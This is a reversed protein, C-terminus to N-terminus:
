NFLNSFISKSNNTDVNNDKIIFYNERMKNMRDDEIINNCVQNFTKNKDLQEVIFHISYMGCETTDYQHRIENYQKKITKFDCGCKQYLKINNEKIDNLQNYINNMLKEIQKPVDNAVSDWFNIQGKPINIFLSVWHSGTKNHKDLNFVIGINKKGNNILESLSINCINNIICKNGSKLAFDIPLAGFSKFEPYKVEYQSLVKNIDINSLWQKPNNLWEVPAIPKFYKNRLEYIKDKNLLSNMINHEFWLIESKNDFKNKLDRYLSQASQNLSIKDDKNTNNWAIILKKIVSLPLCSNNVISKVINKNNNNNNNNNKNNNNIIPSCLM